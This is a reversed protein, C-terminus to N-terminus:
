NLWIPIYGQLDQHRGFLHRATVFWFTCPGTTSEDRTKQCLHESIYFRCIVQLNDGTVNWKKGSSDPWAGVLPNKGKGFTHKGKRAERQPHSIRDLTYSTTNFQCGFDLSHSHHSDSLYEIISMRPCYKHKRTCSLGIACGWPVVFGLVVVGGLRILVDSAEELALPAIFVFGVTLGTRSVFDFVWFGEIVFALNGTLFVLVPEFRPKDFFTLIKFSQMWCKSM